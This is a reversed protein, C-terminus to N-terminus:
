SIIVIRVIIVAVNSRRRKSNSVESLNRDSRLMGAHHIGMGITYLERLDKNKSKSVNRLRSTYNSAEEKSPAFLESTGEKRALEAIAQATKVTEKRSHVFVLIQRKRVLAHACKEYAIENLKAKQKVSNKGVTIGAFTMELPVPRWSRDFYFLGNKNVRLFTAVDKYNPLTASLGVIRVRRQTTEIQRLTRAVLTEIVAGRDDALLHVEDLILLKVKSVLTGDGGAKRTIVDWKEPTVVLMHTKDIETKSLQTDGTLEKVNLGLPRLRSGFKDTIESALAKMPCVYIIKIQDAVIVGDEMHEALCQLVSLMAVNTKGAGTPACILLNESTNFASNYVKSQLRNLTKMGRFALQAWDPLDAIPVLPTIQSPPPENPAPVIVEEWQDHVIRKTGKPLSKQFRATNNTEPRLGNQNTENEKTEVPEIEGYLLVDIEAETKGQRKLKRRERKLAKQTQKDSTSAVQVGIGGTTNSSPRVFRTQKSQVNTQRDLNKLKELETHKEFIQLLFDFGNEGLLNFLDAQLKSEDGKASKVASLINNGLEKPSFIGNTAIVHHECRDLLWQADVAPTAPTNQTSSSSSSTTTATDTNETEAFAESAPLMVPTPMALLHEWSHIHVNINLNCSFEKRQNITKSETTEATLSNKWNSLLQAQKCGEKWVAPEIIGFIPTIGEPPTQHDLMLSFLMGTADQMESTSLGGVIVQIVDAVFHQFIKKNRRFSPLTHDQNESFSTWTLSTKTSQNSLTQEILLKRNKKAETSTYKTTYPNYAHRLASSLRPQM